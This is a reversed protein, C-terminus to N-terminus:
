TIVLFTICGSFSSRYGTGTGAAGVTRGMCRQEVVMIATTVAPFWSVLYRARAALHFTVRHSLKLTVRPTVSHLLHPGTFFTLQLRCRFPLILSMHVSVPVLAHNLALIAFLERFCLVM